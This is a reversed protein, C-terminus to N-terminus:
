TKNLCRCWWLKIAALSQLHDTQPKYSALPLSRAQLTSETLEVCVLNFLLLMFINCTRLVIALVVFLESAKNIDFMEEM